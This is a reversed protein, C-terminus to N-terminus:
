PFLFLPIHSHACAACPSRADRLPRSGRTGSATTGSVSRALSRPQVARGSLSIAHSGGDPAGAAAAAGRSPRELRQRGRLPLPAHELASATPGLLSARSAPLPDISSSAREEEGSAPARSRPRTPRYVRSPRALPLARQSCLPTAVCRCERSRRISAKSVMSAENRRPSPAAWSVFCTGRRLRGRGAGAAAAFSQGSLLSSGSAGNTRLAGGRGGVKCFPM